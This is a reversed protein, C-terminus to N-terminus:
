DEIDELEDNFQKKKAQDSALKFIAIMIVASVMIGLMTASDESIQPIFDPLMWSTIGGIVASLAVWVANVGTQKEVDEKTLVVYPKRTLGMKWNETKIHKALLQAVKKGHLKEFMEAKAKYEINQELAEALKGVFSLEKVLKLGGEIVASHFVHQLPEFHDDGKYGVFQKTEGDLKPSVIWWDELDGDPNTVTWKTSTKLFFLNKRRIRDFLAYMYRKGQQDYWGLDELPYPSVIYVDNFSDVSESEDTVNLYYVNVHGNKKMNKLIEINVKLDTQLSLAEFQEDTLLEVKSLYGEIGAYKNEWNIRVPDVPTGISKYHMKRQMWRAFLYGGFIFVVAFIAWMVFPALSVASSPADGFDFIDLIALVSIM